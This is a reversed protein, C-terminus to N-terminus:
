WAANYMMEFGAQDVPRPNTRNVPDAMADELLINLLNGEGGLDTISRDIGIDSRLKLVADIAGAGTAPGKPSLIKAVEAYKEERVTMNYDMVHPLMTALTQGHAADLRASIAHGTGHASGLGTVNFAQAALASGLLMQSRAEIDQGDTVVGRLNGAVKSIAELAISDSYANAGISVFAEIAHTLVDFGCTATPYTPLGVTLDPDLLSFVPTISPHVVYTKRGLRTNTIVCASNTESGTGATTPVAIVPAAAATPESGQMEEVTGPNSALLAISKGCDMSSGGGIPVVVADGLEKLRAAGAEVNLDTPNPEVSDFVEVSLNAARLAELIPDLLGSAALNKDTVILAATKGLSQIHNNIDKAAGRNFVITPLPRVTFNENSLM